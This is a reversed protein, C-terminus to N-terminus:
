LILTKYSEYLFRTLSKYSKGGGGEVGEKWEGEGKKGEEGWKKNAEAVAEPVKEEEKVGEGYDDEEVLGLAEASGRIIDELGSNRYVYQLANLGDPGENRKFVHDDTTFEDFENQDTVKRTRAYESQRQDIYYQTMDNRDVSDVFIMPGSGPYMECFKM